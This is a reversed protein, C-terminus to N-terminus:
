LRDLLSPASCANCFKISGTQIVDTLFSTQCLFPYVDDYIQYKIEYSLFKCKEKAGPQAISNPITFSFYRDHGIFILSANATVGNVKASPNVFSTRDPILPGIFVDITRSDTCGINNSRQEICNSAQILTNTKEERGRTTLINTEAKKSSIVGISSSFGTDLNQNEFTLDVDKQCSAALFIILAFASLFKLFKM